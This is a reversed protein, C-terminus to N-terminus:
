VALIVIVCLLAWAITHYYFEEQTECLVIIKCLANTHYAIVISIINTRIFIAKESMHDYTRNRGFLVQLYKKSRSLIFRYGISM